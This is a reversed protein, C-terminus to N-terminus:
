TDESQCIFSKLYAKWMYISWALDFGIQIELM